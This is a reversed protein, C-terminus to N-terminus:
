HGERLALAMVIGGGLAAGASFGWLIAAMDNMAAGIVAGIAACGTASVGIIALGVTVTTGIATGSRCPKTPKTQQTNM